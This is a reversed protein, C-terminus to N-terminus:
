EERGYLHENARLLSTKILFDSGLEVDKFSQRMSLLEVMRAELNRAVYRESIRQPSERPKEPDYTFKGWIPLAVLGLHWRGFYVVNPEDDLQPDKIFRGLVTRLEEKRMVRALGYEVGSQLDRVETAAKSGNLLIWDGPKYDEAKEVYQPTMELLKSISM